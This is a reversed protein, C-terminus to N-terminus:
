SKAEARVPGVVEYIMSIGMEDISEKRSKELLSLNKEYAVQSPFSAVSGHTTEDIEFWQVHMGSVSNKMGETLDQQMKDWDINKPHKWATNVIVTM